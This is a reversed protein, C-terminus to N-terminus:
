QGVERSLVISVMNLVTKITGVGLTGGSRASRTPIMVMSPYEIPIGRHRNCGLVHKDISSFVASAGTMGRELLHEMVQEITQLRQLALNYDDEWCRFSM